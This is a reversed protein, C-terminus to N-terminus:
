FEVRELESFKRMKTKIMMSLHMASMASLASLFNSLHYTDEISAIERIFKWAARGLRGTGEVAFPVFGGTGGEGMGPVDAYKKRKEKEREEAAAGHVEHSRSQRIYKRCGPNVFSM